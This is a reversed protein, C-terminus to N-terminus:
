NLRHTSPWNPMSASGLSFVFPLNPERAPDVYGRLAQDRDRIGGFLAVASGLLAVLAFAFIIRQRTM